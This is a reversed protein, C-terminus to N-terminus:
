PPAYRSRTKLDLVWVSRDGAKKALHAWNKEKKSVQKKKLSMRPRMGGGERRRRRRRRKCGHPLDKCTDLLRPHHPKGCCYFLVVASTAQFSSSIGEINYVGRLKEQSAERSSANSSKEVRWSAWPWSFLVGRPNEMASGVIIVFPHDFREVM